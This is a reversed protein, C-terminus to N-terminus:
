EYEEKKKSSFENILSEALQSNEVTKMQELEHEFTGMGETLSKLDIVLNYIESGPLEAELIEFGVWGDKPQNEKIM